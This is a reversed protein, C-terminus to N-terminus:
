TIGELPKKDSPSKLASSIWVLEMIRHQLHVIKAMLQSQSFFTDELVEYQKSKEPAKYELIICLPKITNLLSICKKVQKSTSSPALFLIWSKNKQRRTKWIGSWLQM